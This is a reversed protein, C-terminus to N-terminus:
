GQGGVEGDYLGVAAAAGVQGVKPAVAVEHPQKYAAIKRGAILLGDQARQPM